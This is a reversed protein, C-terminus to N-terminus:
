TKLVLSLASKTSDTYTLSVTAVTAGATGGSKFLYTETTGTPYSIQVTDYTTISLGKLVNLTGSVPVTGAVNTTGSLVNVFPTGVSVAGSIPVTGAINTTGSIVNVPVTGDISVTSTGSIALTGAKIDVHLNGNSAVVQKTTLGAVATGEATGSHATLAWIQNDDQISNQNVM